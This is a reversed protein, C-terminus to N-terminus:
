PATRSVDLKVRLEGDALTRVNGASDQVQLDWVYLVSRTLASTDAPDMDIRAIGGAPNTVVVGAGITKSLVAAIDADKISRKVTFRLNSSTLNVPAGNKDVVAVDFSEDDGRYMELYTSM